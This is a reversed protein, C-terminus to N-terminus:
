EGLRHAVKRKLRHNGESFVVSSKNTHTLLPSWWAPADCTQHFDGRGDNASVHVEICRECALMEQIMGDPRVGSKHALINLHSLDLAYPVGSEFVHRYEDWSSVLLADEAAPYQGEIAVPCGFLDAIRRANDLMQNVTADARYGSHASYAPANLLQSIKAAQAFWEGHSEFSAIDAVTHRPLVRVNAHLRFQALPYTGALQLARETTLHGYNQPVLQVHNASLMGLAPECLMGAQASSIALGAAAEHTLGPYAALSINVELHSGTSFPEGGAVAKNSNM